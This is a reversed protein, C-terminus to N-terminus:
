APQPQRGPARQRRQLLSVTGAVGWPGALILDPDRALVDEAGGHTIPLGRAKEPIASVSADAALHTVAAIRERPVLDILLQDTCLDLSVIRKPKAVAQAVAPSQAALM